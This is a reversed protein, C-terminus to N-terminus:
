GEITELYVEKLYELPISQNSLFGCVVSTYEPIFGKRYWLLHRGFCEYVLGDVNIGMAEYSYAMIDPHACKEGKKYHCPKCLRCSGSTIPRGETKCLMRVFRDARSKLMTNAAKVRLYPNKIDSYFKMEVHLFIIYLNNWGESFSSFTPTNPPCSWKQNYNKCGQKCLLFYKEPAEHKQCVDSTTSCLHITYTATRCDTKAQAEFSLYPM